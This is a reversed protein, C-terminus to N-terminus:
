KKGAAIEIEYRCNGGNLQDSAPLELSAIAGKLQYRFPKGTAPNLPVPVEDIDALQAPLQGDHTAAYM